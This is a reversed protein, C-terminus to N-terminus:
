KELDKRQNLNGPKKHRKSIERMDNVGVAVVMMLTVVVLLYLSTGGVGNVQQRCINGIHCTLELRAGIEYSEVKKTHKFTTGIGIPILSQNGTCNKVKGKSSYPELSRTKRFRHRYYVISNTLMM